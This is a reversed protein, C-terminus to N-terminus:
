NDSQLKIAVDHLIVKFQEFVDLNLRYIDQKLSSKEKLTQIILEKANQM